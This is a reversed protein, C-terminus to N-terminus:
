DGQKSYGRIAHKENTRGIRRGTMVNTSREGFAQARVLDIPGFTGRGLLAGIGRVRLSLTNKVPAGAAALLAETQRLGAKNSLVFTSFVAVKAGNWKNKEVFQRANAPLAGFVTHFGLFVADFGAPGPADGARALGVDACATKAGEAVAAAVEGDHGASYVVLVKM